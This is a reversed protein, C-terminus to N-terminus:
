VVSKRDGRGTAPDVLQIPDSMGGRYFRRDVGDLFPSRAVIALRKGDPAYTAFRVPSLSLMTEPGGASPITIARQSGDGDRSSVMLITRGDPSWARPRTFRPYWTLRRANSGDAMSVWVANGRVYALQSGDPSYLPYGYEDDSTSLRRATGGARPVDWLQGALSFAIRERNVTVDGYLRPAAQAGLLTAGLAAPLFTVSLARRARRM